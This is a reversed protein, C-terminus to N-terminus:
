ELNFDHLRENVYLCVCVGVSIFLEYSIMHAKGVFCLLLLLSLFFSFVFIVFFKYLVTKKISSKTTTLIYFFCLFSIAISAFFYYTSVLLYSVLSLKKKNKNKILSIINLKIYQRLYSICFINYINIYTPLYM